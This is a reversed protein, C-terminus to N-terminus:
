YFLQTSNIRESAQLWFRKMVERLSVSRSARKSNEEEIIISQATHLAELQTKISVLEQPISRECGIRRWIYGNFEGTQDIYLSSTPLPELDYMLAAHKCVASVDARMKHQVIPSDMQGLYYSLTERIDENLRNSLDAMTSLKAFHKKISDIENNAKM